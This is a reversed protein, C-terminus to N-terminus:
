KPEIDNSQMELIIQTKDKKMLNEATLISLNTKLTVMESQLASVKENYIKSDQYNMVM